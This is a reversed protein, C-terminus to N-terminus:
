TIKVWIADLGSPYLECCEATTMGCVYQFHPLDKFKTWAGGWELGLSKGIEAARKWSPHTSDWEAKGMSDLVVIDFPLM